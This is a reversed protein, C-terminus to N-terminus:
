FNTGRLRNVSPKCYAITLWCHEKYAKLLKNYALLLENYALLLNNYALLLKKYALLLKNDACEYLTDRQSRVRHPDARSRSINATPLM